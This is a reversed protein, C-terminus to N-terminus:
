KSVIVPLGSAMAEFVALGWSQLHNPSVYIDHTHYSKRLDEESVEGYFTVRTKLGLNEALQGLRKQYERYEYASTYNGVISLTADYGQDVVLKIAQVVDEYRRHLFFIGAVLVRVRKSACGDRPIFLFNKIDLGSRVVIAQVGFYDRAWNRTRNDLVTMGEHPTIFKRIEYTDILWYYFRRQLSRKLTPDFQEKRWATWSKTLIDSMMIVSPINRMFRKYFVAVRFGVRDHANLIDTDRDILSALRRAANSEARSYRMYNLFGFGPIAMPHPTQFGGPLAVVRLGDLMDSFCKEKDYHITYLTVEHGLQQFARAYGIAQRQSGGRGNLKSEILAIKM